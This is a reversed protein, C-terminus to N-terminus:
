KACKQCPTLGSSKAADLTTQYSNKGGCDPDFHYRKGTPTIYVKKGHTNNSNNQSSTGKNPATSTSSSNGKSPTTKNSQTTQQKKAQEEAKRQEEARRREEEEAKKRAQEEARRKEEEEAEKRAQEEAEKKAQEEKEKKEREIRESDIVKVIAKNSEIGNTSKTFIECTGESLPKIKLTIKGLVNEGNVKELIAIKNNSTCFEINGISAYDPTIELVINKTEKLDLEIESENFQLKTVQTNKNEQININTENISTNNVTTSQPMCLGTIIIIIIPLIVQIHKINLKTKEYFIPLLSIGFLMMFLGSLFEGSNIGSFGTVIFIGGFINRIIKGVNRKKKEKEM